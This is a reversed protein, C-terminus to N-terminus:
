IVGIDIELDDLFEVPPYIPLRPAGTSELSLVYQVVEAEPLITLLDRCSTNGRTYGSYVAIRGDDTRLLAVIHACYRRASTGLDIM